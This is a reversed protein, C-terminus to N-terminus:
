ANPNEVIKSISNKNRTTTRNEDANDVSKSPTTFLKEAIERYYGEVYPDTSVSPRGQESGEMISQVIPIEGM